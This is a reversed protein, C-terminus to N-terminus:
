TNSGEFGRAIDAGDVQIRPPMDRWMVAEYHDGSNAAHPGDHGDPHMCRVGRSSLSRCVLRYGARELEDDSM